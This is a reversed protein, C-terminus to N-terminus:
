KTLPCFVIFLPYMARERARLLINGLKALEVAVGRVSLAPRKVRLPEARLESQVLIGVAAVPAEGHFSEASHPEDDVGAHV